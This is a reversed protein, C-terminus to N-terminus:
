QQTNSKLVDYSMCSDYFNLYRQIGEIAELTEGKFVYCEDEFKLDLARIVSKYIPFIVENLGHDPFDVECDLGLHDMLERCIITLLHGTPHNITNFLRIKSYNDKIYPYMKIDCLMDRKEMQEWNSELCGRVFETDYFEENYFDATYIIANLCKTRVYREIVNKDHYSIGYRVVHKGQEDYLYTMEPFYGSFYMNPLVVIRCTSPAIERMYKLSFVSIGDEDESDLRYGDSIHQCYLIDLDKLNRGYFDLLESRTINHIVLVQQIEHFDTYNSKHELIGAIAEMQCNGVFAVRNM